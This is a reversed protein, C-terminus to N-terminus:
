LLLQATALKAAQHTLIRFVVEAWCDFGDSQTKKAKPKSGRDKEWEKKEEGSREKM